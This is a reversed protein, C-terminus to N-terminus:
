SGDDLPDVSTAHLVMPPRREVMFAHRSDRSLFVTATVCQAKAHSTSCAAHIWVTLILCLSPM